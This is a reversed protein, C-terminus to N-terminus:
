HTNQKRTDNQIGGKKNEILKALAYEFAHSRNQFSHKEIEQDVGELLHADINTTTKQKQM